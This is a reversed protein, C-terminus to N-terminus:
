TNTNLHSPGALTNLDSPKFTLIKDFPFCAHDDTSSLPQICFREERKSHADAPVDVHKM